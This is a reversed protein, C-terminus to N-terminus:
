VVAVRVPQETNLRVKDDGSHVYINEGTAPKRGRARSLATVRVPNGDVLVVDGVQVKKAYTVQTPLNTGESNM